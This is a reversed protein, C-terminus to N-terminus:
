GCFFWSVMPIQRMERAIADADEESLSPNVTDIRKPAEVPMSRRCKVQQVANARALGSVRKSHRVALFLHDLVSFVQRTCRYQIVDEDVTVVSEAAPTDQEAQSDKIPHPNQSNIKLKDKEIWKQLITEM